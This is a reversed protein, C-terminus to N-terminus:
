LPDNDQEKGRAIELGIIEEADLGAGLCTMAAMIYSLNEETRATESLKHYMRWLCALAAQWNREQIHRIAERREAESLANLNGALYRLYMVTGRISTPAFDAIAELGGTRCIGTRIRTELPMGFAEEEPGRLIERDRRAKTSSLVYEDYSEGRLVASIDVLIYGRLNKPDVGEPPEFPIATPLITFADLEGDKSPESGIYVGGPAPEGCGRVPTTIIEIDM